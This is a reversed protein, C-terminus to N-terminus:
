ANQKMDKILLSIKSAIDGMELNLRLRFQNEEYKVGDIMDVISKREAGIMNIIPPLKLDVKIISEKLEQM